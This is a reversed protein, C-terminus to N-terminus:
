SACQIAFIMATGGNAFLSKRRELVRKEAHMIARLKLSIPM